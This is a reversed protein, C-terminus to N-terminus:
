AGLDHEHLAQVGLVKGVPCAPYFEGVGEVPLVGGGVPRERPLPEERPGAEVLHRVGLLSPTMVQVLGLELLGDMAGDDRCFDGLTGRTVRQAMRERRMEELIAVVDARDLFEEAVGFELRCHDVGVHEGM